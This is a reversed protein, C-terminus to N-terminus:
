SSAMVSVLVRRPRHFASVVYGEKDDEGAYGEARPEVEMRARQGDFFAAVDVALVFVGGADLDGVEFVIGEVVGGGDVDSAEGREVGCRPSPEPLLKAATTRNEFRFFRSINCRAPCGLIMIVLGCVKFVLNFVIFYVARPGFFCYFYEM